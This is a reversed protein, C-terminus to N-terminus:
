PVGFASLRDRYAMFKPASSTSQTQQELMGWSGYKSFEEIYTFAMFLDGGNAYWDDFMTDYMNYMRQDRNCAILKQTLTADNQANGNGVLHQGGEYAFLKVGHKNAISKNSATDNAVLSQITNGLLTMIGTVDITAAQGNAELQDGISGGFYPAVAIADAKASAQGALPNVQSDELSSLLVDNVAPNSSQGALVRVLRSSNSGFVTTFIKFIEASRKANYKVGAWFHVGADSCNGTYDGVNNLGAACGTDEAWQTQAFITNWLENSYEVYVLQNPGLRDRILTAMQTVYNDDALHPVNFWADAGTTNALDCMYEYAVGKVSGQFGTPQVRQSWTSATNTNTRGWDMFRLVSAAAVNKVYDPHFPQTTYTSEFGPAILRMNRVHDSGSSRTITIFIPDLSATSVHLVYRGQTQSTVSLGTGLFSFDGDGDYLFVYDGAYMSRATSTRVVQPASQGSVTYPLQLPYGASDRPIQGAVGTDWVGTYGPANTSDFHEGNKMLDVFPLSNSYYTVSGLNMGLPVRPHSGSPPPVPAPAPAPTPTPTPAPAADGGSGGTGAMAMVDGSGAASGETTGGSGAAGEMSGGVGASGTGSGGEGAVPMESRNRHRWWWTRTLQAEYSSSSSGTTPDTIEGSCGALACILVLSLSIKM